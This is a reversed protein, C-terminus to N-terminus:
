IGVIVAFSKQSEYAIRMSLVRELWPARVVVKVGGEHKVGVVCAYLPYEEM